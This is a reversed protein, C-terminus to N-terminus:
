LVVNYLANHISPVLNVLTKEKGFLKISDSPDKAITLRSPKFGYLDKYNNMMKIGASDNDFLTVVSKYHTKIIELDGESLYSTESPPAVMDINTIGACKMAIIDKLSSTILLNDKGQCQESGQLVTRISFFKMSSLPTYIKYVGKNDHYGYMVQHVIEFTKLLTTDEFCGVIAKKVPLVKHQELSEFSINYPFWYNKDSIKWDEYEIDIIKYHYNSISMSDLNIFFAAEKRNFFYDDEILARLNSKTLKTYSSMLDLLTGAKGTSFCKYYYKDDKLYLFMSPTKEEKFLSKFKISHVKETIGFYTALLWKNPINEFELLRSSNFM